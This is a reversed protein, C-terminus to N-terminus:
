VTREIRNDDPCYPPLFHLRFKGVHEAPWRKTERSSHICYNDLVVHVVRKHAYEKNLRKLLAIFL